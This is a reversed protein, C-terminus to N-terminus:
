IKHYVYFWSVMIDFLIINSYKYLYIGTCTIEEDSIHFKSMNIIISVSVCKIFYQNYDSKRNKFSEADSTLASSANSFYWSQKTHDIIPENSRAEREEGCRLFHSAARGFRNRFTFDGPEFHQALMMLSRYPQPCPMLSGEPNSLPLREMAEKSVCITRRLHIVTYIPKCSAAANRGQISTGSDNTATAASTRRVYM